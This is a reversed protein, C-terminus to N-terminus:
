RRRWQTPTVGVVRKFARSFAPGSAYGVRDAVTAITVSPDELLTAAVQLRWRTLYQIPTEGIRHAFRQALGSRSTGVARALSELTWPEAPRRHMVALCRGVVPDRLGALWGGPAAPLERLCRRVVEVFMLEGLRLIVGGSGPTPARAEAVAYAALARLRDDAPDRPPHLRVVGPLAAVVPNFPRLDCGLFGCVIRARDSGGGGERVVFPLGGSAMQRFFEIAPEEEVRARRCTEESSAM